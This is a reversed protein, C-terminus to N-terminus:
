MLANNGDQSTTSTSRSYRSASGRELGAKKRNMLKKLNHRFKEGVFAYLVPNVCCHLMAFNQTITLAQDVKQRTSCLFEVADMRMLTDSMVVLHYPCWCVLFAIVVSAIVRMARHKRTGRTRLLRMATVGYFVSMAVLPLLFGLVHRLGRTALRVNQANGIKFHEGCTKNESVNNYWGAPVSFAAGIVWVMLCSIYGRNRWGFWGSGNENARVIVMYRDASICVLFFISTYFNLEQVVSVLKCVHEGFVWGWVVSVAWLPLTLALLADAVALNFLFLDSTSLQQRSSGVVYGVVLNGPVALLFVMVLFVCISITLWPSLGLPECIRTDPNTEFTKTLNPNETMNLEDYLEDM